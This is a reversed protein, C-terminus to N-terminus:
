IKSKKGPCSIKDCKSRKCDRKKSECKGSNTCYFEGPQCLEEQCSNKDFACKGSQCKYPRFSDCGNGLAFKKDYAKCEQTSSVCYGNTVCKISRNNPCGSINLCDEESKECTGNPCRFEFGTPCTSELPCESKDYRCSGDNCLNMDKPCPFTPKCEEQYKACQGNHCSILHLDSCKKYRNFDYNSPCNSITNTCIGSLCKIPAEIPCTSIGCNNKKCINNGCFNPKNRPCGNELPCSLGFDILSGDPCKQKNKPIKNKDNKELIEKCKEESNEKPICIATNGCRVPAYFPCSNKQECNESNKVCIGNPCLHPFNTPCKIEECDASKRKCTLNPCKVFGIPCGLIERCEEVNKRCSNDPCKVPTTTDCTSPKICENRNKVCSGDWCLISKELPCDINSLCDKPNRKCTNDMCKFPAEWSCTILTGCNLDKSCTGNSCDFYGQPCNQYKPCQLINEKCSSDWCKVPKEVPCIIETPCNNIDKRCSNDLCRVSPNESSGCSNNGYKKEQDICTNYDDACFGL